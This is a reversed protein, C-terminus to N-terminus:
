ANLNRQMKLRARAWWGLRKYTNRVRIRSGLGQRIGAGLGQEQKKVRM